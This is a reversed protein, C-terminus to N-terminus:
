TGGNGDHLCHLFQMRKTESKSTGLWCHVATDKFVVTTGDLNGCDGLDSWPCFVDIDLVMVKTVINVMTVDSSIGNVRFILWSINKGVRILFWDLELM